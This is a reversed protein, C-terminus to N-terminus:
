GMVENPDDFNGILVGVVNDIDLKEIFREPFTEIERITVLIIESIETLKAESTKFDQTM